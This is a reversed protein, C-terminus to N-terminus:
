IGLPSGEVTFSNRRVKPKYRNVMMRWPYNTHEEQTEQGRSCRDGGEIFVM